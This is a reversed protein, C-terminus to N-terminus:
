RVTTVRIRTGDPTVYSRARLGHNELRCARRIKEEFEAPRILFTGDLPNAIKIGMTRGM